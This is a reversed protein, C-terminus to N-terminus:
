RNTLNFYTLEKSNTRKNTTRQENTTRNNSNAVKKHKTKNPFYALLNNIAGQM